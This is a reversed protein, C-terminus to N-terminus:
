VAINSQKRPPGARKPIDSTKNHLSTIPYRVADMAHSWTHVPEGKPNGDRDEAWAYNEYSDWVQTSGRVVLMKKTSVVQIGWNVTDKGKECPQANVGYNRIEKISKPEASDCIVPTTPTWGPYERICQALHENSLETGYAVQEVIYSGNWYWIAVVAAPDPFWGFDVGFRVLRAEKPIADILQWGTYIKGRVEDPSLGEIVQWYYGPNTHKYAQYREVTAPDINPLNERYTGPIYLASKEYEPKLRPIYFGKAEPHPELDFFQRVMWHNKPPTNLTFVIRIPGLTTRLSDDFKRFENEGIEEGEEIWAYNYNALSKLRATLSGASAKFGHGRLSNRGREIFMDQDAIRFAEHVGQEALRDNLESWSSSRIDAHVARMLAGRCYEKGVLRSVSYRSATGSRGNGRGGM